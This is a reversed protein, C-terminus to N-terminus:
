WLTKPQVQSARGYQTMRTTNAVRSRAFYCLMWMTMQLATGDHAILHVNDDAYMNLHVNDDAYMNV